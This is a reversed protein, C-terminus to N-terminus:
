AKKLQQRISKYRAVCEKMSKGEVVKAIEKWREKSNSFNSAPFARLANELQQQQDRSWDSKSESSSSGKAEEESSHNSQGGSSLKIQVPQNGRM